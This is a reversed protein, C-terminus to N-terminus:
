SWEGSSRERQLLEFVAGYEVVSGSSSCPFPLAEPFSDDPFDEFFDLAGLLGGAGSVIGGGDCNRDGCPFSALNLAEADDM